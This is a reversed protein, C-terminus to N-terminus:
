ARVAADPLLARGLNTHLVTGTLNFVPRLHPRSIDTLKSEISQAIEEDGLALSELTGALAHSRLDNLHARLTTTVQTRGHRALLPALAPRNLLRDLSPIDAASARSM